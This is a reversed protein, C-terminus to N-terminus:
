ECTVTQRRLYSRNKLLDAWQSDELRHLSSEELDVWFVERTQFRPELRPAYGLETIDRVRGEASRKDSFVGLSIFNQRGLFYDKVGKAALEDVIRRAEARPMSPLYVWYGSPQEIQASRLTHERGLATLESIFSDAQERTQFPGITQCLPEAPVTGPESATPPALTVAPGPEAAAGDPVPGLVPYEPFMPATEQTADTDGFVPSQLQSTPEQSSIPQVAAAPTEPEADVPKPRERLLVLPEVSAPMSVTDVSTLSRQQPQHTYLWGFVVLNAALLLLAAVKM